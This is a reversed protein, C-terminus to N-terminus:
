AQVQVPSHVVPRAVQTGALSRKAAYFFSVIDYVIATSHPFAQLFHALTARNGQLRGARLGILYGDSCELVYRGGFITTGSFTGHPEELQGCEM